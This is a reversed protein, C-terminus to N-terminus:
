VYAMSVYDPRDAASDHRFEREVQGQRILFIGPMQFGDGALMGVLHGGMIGAQFGRVWSKLGFLQRMNGRKLQFAKYLKQEPDSIHRVGNLGRYNSFFKEGKALPSMHVFVPLVGQDEIRERDRGIDAAAERCFTCGFHRLFVLLVPRQHTLDLLDQDHQDRAQAMAMRLPTDPNTAIM